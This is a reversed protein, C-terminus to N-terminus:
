NHNSRIKPKSININYDFYKCLQNFTPREDPNLDICPLFADEYLFDVVASPKPLKYGSSVMEMTHESSWEAYPTKGMTAIEWLLIGFSWVDTKMNFRKFLFSEPAMWKVPLPVDTSMFYTDNNTTMQRALGFDAVKVLPIHNESIEGVLVNRAALDRHVCNNDSLYCMASAVQSSINMASETCLHNEHVGKKLFDLLSGNKMYETIILFPQQLVIIFFVLIKGFQGSGIHEKFVLSKRDIEWKMLEEYHNESSNDMRPAPDTLKTCIHIDTSVVEDGIMQMLM